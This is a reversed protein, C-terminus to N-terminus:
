RAWRKRAAAARKVSKDEWEQRTPQYDAYDNILWGGDETIELPVWLGVAVLAATHKDRYGWTHPLPLPVWGDTLHRTSYAIGQLWLVVAAHGGQQVARVVKPNDFMATDVRFWQPKSTM